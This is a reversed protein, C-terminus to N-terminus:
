SLDAAKGIWDALRDRPLGTNEALADADAAALDRFTTVGAVTLKGAYVPGIGNVETLDDHASATSDGATSDAAIPAAPRETPEPAHRFPPPHATPATPGPVLQDRLLWAVGAAFAVLTLLKLLKKM